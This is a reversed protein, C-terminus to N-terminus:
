SHSTRVSHLADAVAPEPLAQDGMCLPCEMRPKILMNKNDCSCVSGASCGTGNSSTCTVKVITSHQCYPMLITVKAGVRLGKTNLKVKQKGEYQKTLHFAGRKVAHM